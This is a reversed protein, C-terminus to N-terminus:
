CDNLCKSSAYWFNKLLSPPAGRNLFFFVLWDVVKVLLANERCPFPTYRALIPVTLGIQLRGFEWALWARNRDDFVTRLSIKEAKNHLYFRFISALDGLIPTSKPM